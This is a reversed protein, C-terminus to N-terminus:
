KPRSLTPVTKVIRIDIATWDEMRQGDELYQPTTLLQKLVEEITGHPGKFDHCSIEHGAYFGKATSVILRAEITM